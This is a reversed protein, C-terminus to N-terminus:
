KAHCDPCLFSEDKSTYPYGIPLCSEHVWSFCQTCQVWTEQEEDDEESLGCVVCLENPEDNTIDDARPEVQDEAVSREDDARGEVKDASPEDGARAGTDANLQQSTHYVSSAASRKKRAVQHGSNKRHKRLQYISGFQLGCARVDSSQYTCKFRKQTQAVKTTQAARRKPHYVQFHRKKETKSLFVFNPCHPCRGHNNDQFSPLYSDAEPIEEPKKSCMELYTCYHGVHEKSPMPYFLSMNRDRLFSFVEKARVPNESCHPCASRGCKMFVIENHHRNTHALLFRYESLLDSYTSGDRIDRLPAKLFKSVRDHDSAIQDNCKVPVPIVPFEDFVTKNWHVDAIESIADDFVEEEKAKKLEESIGALFHPAKEDGAAIASLRVSALKKSLVSWLHEIPNYASYRAAFSTVCLLDLNCLKWLRLFYLANMLSATSWDPGGDVILTIVTRGESTVREIIPKMDHIHIECTSGHFRGSRLCVTVPGTHPLKFHPRLLSDKITSQTRPAAPSLVSTSSAAQMSSVEIHVTTAESVVSRTQVQVSLITEGAASSTTVMTSITSPQLNPERITSAGVTAIATVATTPPPDTVQPAMFKAATNVSVECNDNLGEDRFMSMDEGTSTPMEKAKSLLRMYGSPIILYGPIPFDHDLVNPADDVPFFRQIQHYRSVALAGVKIKNMDDCSFIACENDFMATFERRYAVQAFLYHQDKHFERYQNRKGPVRAEVVGRYRTGAVTGRRPPQMLRAVSNISITNLGPVTSVLHDRIERLSVGVKGSQKRRREHARYGNAKVFSTAARVIEPFQSVLSPRGVKNSTESATPSPSTEVRRRPTPTPKDLLLLKDFGDDTMILEHCNILVVHHGKSVALLPFSEVLQHMVDAAACPNPVFKMVETLPLALSGELLM